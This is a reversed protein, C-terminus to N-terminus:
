INSLFLKISTLVKIVSIKRNRIFLKKFFTTDDSEDM